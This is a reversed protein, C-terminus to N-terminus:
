VQKIRFIDEYLGLAFRTEEDLKDYLCRVNENIKMYDIILISLLSVISQTAFIAMNIDEREKGYADKFQILSIFSPHGHLSIFARTYIIFDYIRSPCKLCKTKFEIFDKESNEM